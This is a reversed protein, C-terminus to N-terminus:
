RWSPQFVRPVLNYLSKLDLQLIFGLEDINNKFDADRKHLFTLNKFNWIFFEFSQRIMYYRTKLGVCFMQQQHLINGILFRMRSSIFSFKVDRQYYILLHRTQLLLM